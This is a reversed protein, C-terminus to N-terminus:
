ILKILTVMKIESAPKQTVEVQVVQGLELKEKKFIKSIGLQIEQNGETLYVSAKKPNEIQTIKAYLITGERVDNISKYEINIKEKISEIPTNSSESVVTKVEKTTEKRMEKEELKIKERNEFGYESYLKIFGMPLLDNNDEDYVFKRSKYRKEIDKKEKRKIVEPNELTSSHDNFRWDGTISHFGVGAGVRLVCMCKQYEEKTPIENLLKEYSDIIKHVKAVDSNPELHAKYFELEKELHQKTHQNIFTFLNELPSETILEKLNPITIGSQKKLIATTTAFGIRVKAIETYQPHLVEYPICFGNINNTFNIENNGSGLGIKWAAKWNNSQKKLNFTKTPVLKTNCSFYSDSVKLLSMLTTNISKGNKEEIGGFFGEKIFQEKTKTKRATNFMNKKLFDKELSKMYSGLFASIIAGKLSSGPIYVENKITRIFSSIDDRTDFSYDFQLINKINEELINELSEGNLESNVIMESLEDNDIDGKKLIENIDTVYIKQKDENHFYDINKIWKKETGIHVPSLVELYLDFNKNIGQPNM